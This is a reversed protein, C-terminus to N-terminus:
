LWSKGLSHFYCDKGNIDKPFGMTRNTVLLLAKVEDFECYRKCQKYISTKSGKIKVEIALGNIFFDPINKNDLRYEREVTLDSEEFM